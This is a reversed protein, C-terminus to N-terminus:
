RERPNPRLCAEAVECLVAVQVEAAQESVAPDLLAQMQEPNRLQPRTWDALGEVGRGRSADIAQKGTRTRM